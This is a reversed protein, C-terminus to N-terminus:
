WLSALALDHAQVSGFAAFGAVAGLEAGVTWTSSHFGEGVGDQWIGPDSKNFSVEPATNTAAATGLSEAGHAAALPGACLLVFIIDPRRLMTMGQADLYHRM